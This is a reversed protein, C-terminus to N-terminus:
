TLLTDIYLHFTVCTVLTSFGGGAAIGWTSIAGEIGSPVYKVICLRPSVEFFQFKTSGATVTTNEGIIAIELCSIKLRQRITFTSDIHLVHVEGGYNNVLLLDGSPLFECGHIRLREDDSGKLKVVNVNKFSVNLFKFPENLGTSMPSDESTAALHSEISPATAQSGRGDDTPPIHLGM